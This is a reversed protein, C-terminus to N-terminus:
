FTQIGFQIKKKGDHSKIQKKINPYPEYANGM